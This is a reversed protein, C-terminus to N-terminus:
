TVDKDVRGVKPEPLWEGRDQDFVAVDMRWAKGEDEIRDALPYVVSRAVGKTALAKPYNLRIFRIAEDRTMLQTPLGNELEIRRAWCGAIAGSHLRTSNYDSRDVGPPTDGKFVIRVHEDDRTSDGYYLWCAPRDVVRGEEPRHKQEKPSRRFEEDWGRDVEDKPWESPPEGRPLDCEREHRWAAQLLSEGNAPLRRERGAVRAVVVDFPELEGVDDVTPALRFAWGFPRELTEVVNVSLAPHGDPVGLYRQVLSVAYGLAADADEIPPADPDPPSELDHMREFQRCAGERAFGPLASVLGNEKVVVAWPSGMRWSGPDNPNEDECAPFGVDFLWLGPREEPPWVAKAGPQLIDLFEQLRDRATEADPAPTLGLRLDRLRETKAEYDAIRAQERAADSDSADADGSM